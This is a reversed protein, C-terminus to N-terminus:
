DNAAYGGNIEYYLQVEGGCYCSVVVGVRSESIWCLDPRELTGVVVAVCRIGIGLIFKVPILLARQEMGSDAALGLRCSSYILRPAFDCDDNQLLSSNQRLESHMDGNEECAYPASM